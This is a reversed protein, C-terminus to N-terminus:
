GTMPATADEPKDVTLAPAGLAATLDKAHAALWAQHARIVRARAAALMDPRSRGAAQAAECLALMERQRRDIAAPLGAVDVDGYADCFVRARRLQEGVPEDSGLDLFKWLAYGVDDVRRGRGAGDFDFVAWPMGGDDLVLNWPAFDNHCVVESQGNLGTRVSADHFGRLLRAAAALQADSFRQEGQGTDGPLYSLKERGQEDFGQHRPSGEFGAAKLGALLMAVFPSNPGAPRRVTDGVRVVGGNSWGGALPVESVGGSSEDM